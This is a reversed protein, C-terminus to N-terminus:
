LLNCEDELQDRDMNEKVTTVIREYAEENYIKREKKWKVLADHSLSKIMPAVIPVIHSVAATPTMADSGDKLASTLEENIEKFDQTSM